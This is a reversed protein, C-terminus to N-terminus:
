MKRKYSHQHYEEGQAFAPSKKITDILDKMSYATQYDIDTVFDTRIEFNTGITDKHDILDNRTTLLQQIQKQMEILSAARQDNTLEPYTDYNINLFHHHRHSM